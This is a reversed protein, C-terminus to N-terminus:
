LWDQAEMRIVADWRNMVEDLIRGRLSADVVTAGIAGVLEEGM